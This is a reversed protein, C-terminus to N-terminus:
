SKGIAALSDASFRRSAAIAAIRAQAKAIWAQAPAQAAAPLKALEALAGALDAQTARVEIRALVAAPDDGPVDEVPRVRVLREASAQMRELFGADRPTGGAQQTLAPILAVLERGLAAAAPLGSQAFPDLPVLAKADAALAKAAALEPAFPEGREVAANLASAVVARRVDAADGASRKALEGELAKASAELAAIRTLLADLEARPGGPPGLQAVKRTLEALATALADVKERAERAVVSIDDTRRAVIGLKEDIAKLAGELTAIRNFLNNDTAPPRAAAAAELKAVRATLDEVVKPDVSAPPTRGALERLQREIRALREEIPNANPGPGPPTGDGGIFRTAVFIMLAVLVLGGAGAGITRWPLHPPLWRIKAGTKAGGPTESMDPKSTVDTAELDITPGTRRRGGPPGSPPIDSSM